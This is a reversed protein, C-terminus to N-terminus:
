GGTEEAIARQHERREKVELARDPAQAERARARSAALEAARAIETEDAEVITGCDTFRWPPPIDELDSPRAQDRHADCHWRKAGTEAWGGAETLPIANCGDAHCTQLLPAGRVRGASQALRIAAEDDIATATKLGALKRAGDIFLRRDAVDLSEVLDVVQGVTRAGARYGVALLERCTLADEGDLLKPLQWISEADLPTDRDRYPIKIAWNM